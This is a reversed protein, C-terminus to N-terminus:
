TLKFRAAGANLAEALKRMETATAALAESQASLEQTSASVQEASASTQESTASVQLIAGTVRSTREAMEEAGSASQQASVAIGEVSSVIQKTSAALGQVDAAIRQMQDSSAQVSSIISGLAVGAQSTVERGERVDRVGAAMAQVAQDTGQQVKAILTAIEKTSSSSREALSRVNDAVVAFGRGQEGARAAEIAANLALLNTQSAIEDIVKVIDGIQKGYEGLQNVTASARDVAQAIAEMSSVAQNVAQQGEVAASRSQEAARAVEESTTAVIAIREGMQMAQTRSDEASQANSAAATALRQSGAAVLEVERASDQSLGSLAVASQTVETIATAIQGTALAMQGSSERLTDSAGLISGANDRVGGVVSRLNTVMTAMSKGLRDSEGRPRAEVTLDGSAVRDSVDVIEHLYALMESFSDSMRGLEDRQRISIQQDLDGRSIGAAAAAIRDVNRKVQRGVLSIGAAVVAVTGILIGLLTKRARSSNDRNSRYLEGATQGKVDLSAAVAEDVASFLKEGGAVIPALDAGAAIAPLYQKTAWAVYAHEADEIKKISPVDVGDTDDTYAQKIGADFTQLLAALKAAHASVAAPDIAAELVTARSEQALTGIKAQSLAGLMPDVYLTETDTDLTDLTSIVQWALIALMAAGVGVVALLKTQIGLNNFWSM